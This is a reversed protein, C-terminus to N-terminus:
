KTDGIEKISQDARLRKFADEKRHQAAKVSIGLRRSGEHPKEERFFRSDIVELEKRTLINLRDNVIEKIENIILQDQSNMKNSKYVKRDNKRRNKERRLMTCYLHKATKILYQCNVNKTETMQLVKLVMEHYLDEGDRDGGIKMINCKISELLSLIAKKQIESQNTSNSECHDSLSADDQDMTDLVNITNGNSQPFTPLSIMTDM